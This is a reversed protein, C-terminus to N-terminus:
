RNNRFLDDYLSKVAIREYEQQIFTTINLQNLAQSIMEFSIGRRGLSNAIKAILGVQNRMGEGIVSIRAFSNELTLVYEEGMARILQGINGESGFFAVSLAHREDAISEINIGANEFRAAINSLVGPKDTEYKVTLIYHRPSSAIIKAGLHETSVSSSIVTGQYSEDVIHIPINERKAPYVAKPNIIKAGLEAFEIAEDYTLEGIVEADPVLRPHARRVGPEDSFIYVADAIIAEAVKTSSYNSGDRGLTTIEGQSNYGVFGPVVVLKKGQLSREIEVTAEETATADKYDETLMGFQNYDLVIAELTKALFKGFTHLMLREGLSVTESYAKDTNGPSARGLEEYLSFPQPIGLDECIQMTRSIIGQKNEEPNEGKHIRELLNTVKDGLYSDDLKGAASVVVVLQEPKGTGHFDAVIDGARAIARSDKLSTGGFKLVYKSM